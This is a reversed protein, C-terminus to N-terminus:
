CGSTSRVQLVYTGINPVADLAPDNKAIEIGNFTLDGKLPFNHTAALNRIQNKLTTTRNLVFPTKNVTSDTNIVQFIPTAIQGDHM